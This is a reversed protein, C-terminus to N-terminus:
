RLGASAASVCTFGGISNELIVKDNELSGSFEKRSDLTNDAGRSSRKGCSWLHDNGFSLSFFRKMVEIERCRIDREGCLLGSLDM